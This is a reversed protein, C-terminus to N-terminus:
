DEEHYEYRRTEFKEYKKKKDDLMDFAQLLRQTWNGHKDVQLYEYVYLTKKKETKYTVMSRGLQGKENWDYISMYKVRGKDNYKIYQSLKHDDRRKYASTPLAKGGTKKITYSIRYKHTDYTAVEVDGTIKCCYAIKRAPVNLVIEYDNTTKERLDEVRQRILCGAENYTNTYFFVTKGKSDSRTRSQLDGVENYLSVEKYKRDSMDFNYEREISKVPGSYHGAVISPVKIDLHSVQAYVPCYLASFLILIYLLPKM